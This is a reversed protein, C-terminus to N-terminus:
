PEELLDADHGRHSRAPPSGNSALKVMQGATRPTVRDRASAQGCTVPRPGIEPVTRDGRRQRHHDPDGLGGVNGKHSSNRMSGKIAPRARTLKMEQPPGRTTPAM